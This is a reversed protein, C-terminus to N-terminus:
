QRVLVQLVHARSGSVPQVSPPVGTAHGAAHTLKLM